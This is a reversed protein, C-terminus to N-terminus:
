KCATDRMSKDYFKKTKKYESKWFDCTRERQQHVAIDRGRQIAKQHEHAQRQVREQSSKQEALIKQRALRRQTEQAKLEMERTSTAIEVELQESLLRLKHATWLEVGVLVVFGSLVFSLFLTLGLKYYNIM